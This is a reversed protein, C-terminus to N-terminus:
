VVSNNPQRKCNNYRNRNHSRPFSHSLCHRSVTLSPSHIDLFHLRCFTCRVFLDLCLPLLCHVAHLKERLVNQLASCSDAITPLKELLSFCLFRSSYVSYFCHYFVQFCPFEYARVYRSLCVMSSDNYKGTTYAPHCVVFCRGLLIWITLCSTFAM